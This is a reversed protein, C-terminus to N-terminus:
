LSRAREVNSILDGYLSLLNVLLGIHCMIPRRIVYKAPFIPDILPRHPTSSRASSPPSAHVLSATSSAEFFPDICCVSAHILSLTSSSDTFLDIFPHDQPCVFVCACVFFCVFLCVFLCLFVCVCLCVVCVCVCVCM